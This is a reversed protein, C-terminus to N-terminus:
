SSLNNLGKVPVHWFQQILDTVWGFITHSSFHLSPFARMTMAAQWQVVLIDQYLPWSAPLLCDQERHGCNRQWCIRQSPLWGVVVCGCVSIWLRLLGKRCDWNWPESNWKCVLCLLKITFKINTFGHMTTYNVFFIWCSAV